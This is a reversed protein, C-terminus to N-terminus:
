NLPRLLSIADQIRSIAKNKGLVWLLEFPSPSAERGSLAVRLPWLVEGNKLEAQTIATKLTTDIQELTWPEDPLKEVQGLTWTLRELALQPTMKKWVLMKPDYQLTDAAFVDISEKIDSLKKLRPQEITVIKLLLADEQDTPLYPRCLELVDQPSKQRIYQGNFWDLKEVDFVAGAKNVQSLDFEQILESLTFFERESKPNWGLLVMFNIIAEPLYGAEQFSQLSVAGQRKSLKGGGPNLLLSLHAFKPPETGMMQYLLIHKPLSPLWEEGRIVHTIEMDTDDVILALHYTPFGDSKMLIQDDLDACQFEVRGRILDDCVVTGTDPIRMRIVHTEGAAARADSDTLSITACKRDYKPPLKQAQQLTRMEELREATCFCRYAKETKLLHHAAAQYKDLRESQVYPAHPGGKLPDEDRQLGLWDLGDFISKLGEGSYRARDTDEIRLIFQGGAKKAVLYAYLATRFGGIHQMGTPSPAFRTRIPRNTNM